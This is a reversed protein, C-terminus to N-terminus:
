PAVTTSADGPAPPDGYLEVAESWFGAEAFGMGGSLVCDCPLPVPGHGQWGHSRVEDGCHCVESMCGPEHAASM